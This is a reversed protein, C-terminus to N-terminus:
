VERSKRQFQDFISILSALIIVISLIIYLTIWIGSSLLSIRLNRKVPAFGKLKNIKTMNVVRTGCGPMSNLVAWFLGSDEAPFSMEFTDANIPIDGEQSLLSYGDSSSSIHSNIEAPSNSKIISIQGLSTKRDIQIEIPIRQHIMSDTSESSEYSHINIASKRKIIILGRTQEQWDLIVEGMSKIAKLNHYTLIDKIYRESKVLLHHYKSDTNEYYSPPKYLSDYFMMITESDGASELLLSSVQSQFAKHNLPFKRLLKTDPYVIPITSFDTIIKNKMASIGHNLWIDDSSIVLTSSLASEDTHSRALKGLFEIDRSSSGEHMTSMYTILGASLWIPIAYLLISSGKLRQFCINATMISLAPRVFALHHPTFSILASKYFLFICLIGFLLVGYITSFLIPDKVKRFQSIILFLIVTSAAIGPMEPAFARGMPFARFYSGQIAAGMFSWFNEDPYDWAVPQTMTVHQLSSSKAQEFQSIDVDSNISSDSTFLLNKFAHHNMLTYIIFPSFLMCSLTLGAIANKLPKNRQSEASNIATNVDSSNGPSKSIKKRDQFFYVWISHLLLGGVLFFGTYHTLILILSSVPLLPFINKRNLQITYALLTSATLFEVVTYYDLRQAPGVSAPMLTIILAALFAPATGYLRRALLFVTLSTLAGTFAHISRLVVIQDKINIDFIGLIKRCLYLSFFYLPPHNDAKFIELTNSISESGFLSFAEDNTIDRSSLGISRIFLAMSFILLM